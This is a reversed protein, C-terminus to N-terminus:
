RHSACGEDACVFGELTRRAEAQPLFVGCRACRVMPAAAPPAATGSARTGQNRRRANAINALRLVMLVALVVVIWVLVKMM